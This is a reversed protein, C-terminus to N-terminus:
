VFLVFVIGGQAITDARYLLPHPPHIKKKVNIQIVEILSQRQDTNEGVM